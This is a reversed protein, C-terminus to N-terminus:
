FGLLWTAQDLVGRLHKWAWPRIPGYVTARGRMGPRFQRASNDLEIPAVFVSQDDRLQAAPYIQNIATDVTGLSAADVRLQVLSDDEVLGIEREPIEIEVIVRDLSAIELLVEGIEVPAGISRRLDGAVVIGDIPSTISLQNLRRELLERQRLLQQCKFQALQSEAIRGAALAVDQQKTAQQIEADLSQQELRLPRGDLAVLPQGAAVRDGPEVLVSEITAEFPASVVRAGIPEVRLTCATRYPVPCILLLVSMLAAISIAVRPRGRTTSWDPMAISPRSWLIAGLTAERQRIQRFLSEPIREGSLCLLALQKRGPSALRIIAQSHTMCSEAGEASFREWSAALERQLNSESGLWGLRSDFFRRLRTSGLGCRVHIGPLSKAFWESMKVTTELRSRGCSMAFYLSDFDLEGEIARSEERRFGNGTSSLSEDAISVSITPSGLIASRGPAAPSVKKGPLPASAMPPVPPSLPRGEAGSLSFAAHDPTLPPSNM